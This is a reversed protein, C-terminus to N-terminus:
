VTSIGGAPNIFTQQGSDQAGRGSEWAGRDKEPAVGVAKWSEQVM